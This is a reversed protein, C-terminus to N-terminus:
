CKRPRKCLFGCAAICRGAGPAPPSAGRVALMEGAPEGGPPTGAEAGSCRCLAHVSGSVEVLALVRVAGADDVGVGIGADRDQSPSVPAGCEGGHGGGRASLRTEPAPALFQSLGHAVGSLVVIVQGVHRQGVTDFAVASRASARSPASATSITVGDRVRRSITRRSGAAGEGRAHRTASQQLPMSRPVPRQQRLDGLLLQGAMGDARQGARGEGVLGRQPM